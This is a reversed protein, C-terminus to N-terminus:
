SKDARKWRRETEVRASGIWEIKQNLGNMLVLKSTSEDNFTGHAISYAQTEMKILVVGLHPFYSECNFLNDGSDLFDQQYIGPKVDSFIIYQSKTGTTDAGFLDWETNLISLFHDQGQYVYQPTNASLRFPADDRKGNDASESTTPVSPALSMNIKRNTAIQLILKSLQIYEEPRTYNPYHSTYGVLNVWDGLNPANERLAEFPHPYFQRLITQVNTLQESPIFDGSSGCLWALVKTTNKKVMWKRLSREEALVGNWYPHSQISCRMDLVRIIDNAIMKGFISYERLEDIKKGIQLLHKVKHRSDYLWFIKALDEAHSAVSDSDTHQYENRLDKFDKWFVSFNGIEPVESM